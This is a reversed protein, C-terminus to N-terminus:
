FSSGSSLGMAKRLVQTMAFTCLIYWGLWGVAFPIATTPPGYFMHWLPTLTGYYVFQPLSVIVKSVVSQGMWYFVLLIPIFTVILPKFSMKMMETQKSMFEKQKKQMKAIEKADGSKQVDRMETQFDKVDDRIKNMEDQDVLLKNAITTIFAITTSILFVTLLPNTPTPDLAIIPAFVGNLADFIINMVM